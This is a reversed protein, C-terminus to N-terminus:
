GIEPEKQGLTSVKWRRWGHKILDAASRMRQFRSRALWSRVASSKILLFGLVSFRLFEQVCHLHFPVLSEGGEVLLVVGTMKLM